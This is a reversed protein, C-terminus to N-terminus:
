KLHRWFARELTRESVYAPAVGARSRNGALRFVQANIVQKERGSLSKNGALKQLAQLAAWNPLGSGGPNESLYTAFQQVTQQQIGTLKPLDIYGAVAAALSEIRAQSYSREQRVNANVNKFEGTLRTEKEKIPPPDLGTKKVYSRAKQQVIKLYELAKTEFPLAQEPEYLRLHLESQWMQELAM